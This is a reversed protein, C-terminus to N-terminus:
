LLRVKFKLLLFYLGDSVKKNSFVKFVCRFIFVLNKLFNRFLPM